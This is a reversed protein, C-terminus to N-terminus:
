GRAGEQQQRHHRALEELDEVAVLAGPAEISGRRTSDADARRERRLARNRKASTGAVPRGRRQRSM